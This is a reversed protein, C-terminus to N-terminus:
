LMGELSTDSFILNLGETDNAIDDATEFTGENAAINARANDGHPGAFVQSRLYGVCISSSGRLFQLFFPWFSEPFIMGPQLKRHEVRTDLLRSNYVVPNSIMPDCLLM